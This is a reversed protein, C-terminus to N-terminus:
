FLHDWKCFIVSVHTMKLSVKKQYIISGEANDDEEEQTHKSNETQLFLKSNETDMFYYVNRQYVLLLYISTLRSKESCVWHAHCLAICM